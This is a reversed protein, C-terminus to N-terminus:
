CPKNPAKVNNERGAWIELAPQQIALLARATDILPQSNM